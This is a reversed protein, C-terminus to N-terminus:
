KLSARQGVFFIMMIIIIIIIGLMIISVEFRKKGM